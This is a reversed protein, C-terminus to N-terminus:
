LKKKEEEEKLYQDITMQVPEKFRKERNKEEENIDSKNLGMEKRMM